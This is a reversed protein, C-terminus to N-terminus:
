NLALNLTPKLTRQPLQTSQSLGLISGGYAFKAEGFEHFARYFKAKPMILFYCKSIKQQFWVFLAIFAM